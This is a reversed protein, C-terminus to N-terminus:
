NIMGCGGRPSMGFKIRVLKVTRLIRRSLCVSLSVSLSVSLVLNIYIYIYIYVLLMYGANGPWYLSFDLLQVHRKLFPSPSSFVMKPKKTVMTVM